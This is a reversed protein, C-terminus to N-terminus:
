RRRRSRCWWHRESNTADQFQFKRKMIIWTVPAFDIFSYSHLVWVVLLIFSLYVVPFDFYDLEIACLGLVVQDDSSKWALQVVDLLVDLVIQAYLEILTNNWRDDKMQEPVDLYRFISSRLVDSDERLSVM